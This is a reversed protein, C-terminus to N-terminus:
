LALGRQRQGRRSIAITPAVNSVTVSKSKTDTGTDDDTVNVSVTQPTASDDAWSCTFSGSKSLPTFTDLSAVGGTGCGISHTWGDSGPDTWTYTYNLSSGENVTTGGLLTIAPAVNSVTVTETDSGIGGDDDTITIGVITSDSPTATPSDDAFRCDFSGDGTAASFVVPGVVVGSAGCSPTGHSFTDLVGADTTDFTYTVLTQSESVATSGSIVVSPALNSVTVVKSDTDTGTDDDTVTVSVTAPDSATGTPADDAWTCTFSGSKTGEDFVDLSDVGGTGCSISHTWGDTGPDTWTYTYNLSGGENVASGGNLTVIPAVNLVSVSLTDSDSGGDDDNVTVSVNHSAPGDAFTCEFSGSGDAPNFDANSSLTGGDCDELVLM